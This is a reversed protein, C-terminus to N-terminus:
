SLATTALSILDQKLTETCDAERALRRLCAGALSSSLFPRPCDQCGLLLSLCARGLAPYSYRQSFWYVQPILAALVGGRVNGESPSLYISKLELSSKMLNKPSLSLEEPDHSKEVVSVCKSRSVPTVSTKQNSTTSPAKNAKQILGAVPKKDDTQQLACKPKERQGSINEAQMEFGIMELESTCNALREEASEVCEHHRKSIGKEVSDETPAPAAQSAVKTSCSLLLSVCIDELERQLETVLFRCAGIMTEGLPTKQFSLDNASHGETEKQCGDLGETVLTDLIPCHGRREREDREKMSETDDTLRCGHLYHLVPLLMGTSVDKIHIAETNCHAEEFGGRMLARFYESGVRHTGEVGAVAERNAPVRTGNDLLLIVDFDSVGYPCSDALRPKKSPPPSARGTESLETTATPRVHKKTLESKVSCTLSSLCGILLSFYLSQLQSTLGSHSSNLLDSILKGYEAPNDEDVDSNDYGLPQMALLLGGSDLLLKKLLSKNSCILPLSLACSMKDSESGSLMVHALVGSGFGSECQVRLNNLLAVGLQEVKDKVRDTEREEEEFGGDKQCLHHHILAVSGTRVLAQLCNPNCSLRCLIRFCRSSPDQHRTLYYLLGSMIDSSVLAASPDTAHSFRSLLLLIPSEPTWPEPHYPHHYAMSRPVSPPIDLTVKTLCAASHARQRRRHPSSFKSPSIPTQTTKTPSSITSSSPQIQPTAASSTQPVSSLTNNIKWSSSVQLHASSAVPSPQAAKKASSVTRNSSSSNKLSSNTDPNPSSTQPSSSPPIQLSGWEGDVGSSDVLDGESSILGESVLWSRLSLFSSSCLGQEKGSDEKKQGDPPPFDFSDFCSSPLLETPSMSSCLGLDMKESFTEEGRTLEVLRAVLLPVLGLEQLQEMASEDFVFDVCALIALRSLPHTQHASLFSILVELGGSEKVKARNVAEKCCLCLAKFFVGSKLPERKVKETFKHIVGLSGVLPRLCGQSCMNALTKLALEEFPKGSEGSAMVGLQALVGSRSVERACEVGCGRTLEHLTRLAARRLGQPYEPAILPALAPLTGQTLLSLRNSPTDSLYLLARAASQACELKPCPDKPSAATPSSPASSLSVCLLLLPVGGASHILVSSEPDMALNGLARAARNQVTELAVNRKLIDVLICIGDLKRVEVRTELETCCNALISLALDLIKRSCEPHKLVELLPRLGGLTRFRAIGAKDGKIHQTRIAVLARWQSARFRKDTDRGGGSDTKDHGQHEAGSGPKSLHALCWTLSSEPSSPHGERSPARSPKWDGQVPSAAM